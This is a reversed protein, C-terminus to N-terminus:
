LIVTMRIIARQEGRRAARGQYLASLYTEKTRVAVHAMHTLGTRLTRNGQRTKGSRQKGASEDNCPTVGTWASLRSSMSCRRM